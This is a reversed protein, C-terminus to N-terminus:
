HWGAPASPPPLWFAAQPARAPGGTMGGAMVRPRMNAPWDVPATRQRKTKFVLDALVSRTKPPKAPESAFAPYKALAGGALVAGSWAVAGVSAALLLGRAMTAGPEALM